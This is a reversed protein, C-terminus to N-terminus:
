VANKFSAKSKLIVNRQLLVIDDAILRVKELWSQQYQFCSRDVKASSRKGFAYLHVQIPIAVTM